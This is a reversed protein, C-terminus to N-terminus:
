AYSVRNLRHLRSLPLPLDDPGGKEAAGGKPPAPHPNGPAPKAQPKGVQIVKVTTKGAAPYKNGGEAGGNPGKNGGEAGKKGGEGGMGGEAGKNGGEAGQDGGEAPPAATPTPCESGNALTVTVTVTATAGEKPAETKTPEGAGETVAGAEKPPETVAPEGAGETKTEIAGAGETKTEIVGEETKTPKGANEVNTELAGEAPPETQTPKGAVDTKTETAGGEKPPETKAPEGAAETKTEAPAGEKATETAGGEVKTETATEKPAETAGGEKTATPAEPGAAGSCKEITTTSSTITKELTLKASDILSLVNQDNSQCAELAKKATELGDKVDVLGKAAVSASAPAGAGAGRRVKAGIPIRGGISAGGEGGAPAGGGASLAASIGSLGGSCKELGGKVNDLNGKLTADGGAAASIKLVVQETESVLQTTTRQVVLCENPNFKLGQGKGAEPSEKGPTQGEKPPTPAGHVQFALCLVFLSLYAALRAM